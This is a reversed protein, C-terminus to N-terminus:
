GGGGGNSQNLEEKPLAELAKPERPLLGARILLKKRDEDNDTCCRYWPFYWAKCSPCSM